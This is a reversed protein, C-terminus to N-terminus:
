RDDDDGILSEVLVMVGFILAIPVLIRAAAIWFEVTMM